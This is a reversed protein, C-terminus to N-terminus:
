GQHASLDRHTETHASDCTSARTSRIVTVKLGYTRPELGLRGVGDVAAKKVRDVSALCVLQAEGFPTPELGTQARNRPSVRGWGITSAFGPAECRAGAVSAAHDM